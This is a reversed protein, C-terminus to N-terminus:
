EQAVGANLGIGWAWDGPTVATYRGVLDNPDGPTTDPTVDTWTGREWSITVSGSASFAERTSEADPAGEGTGPDIMKPMNAGKSGESDPDERVPRWAVIEGPELAFTNNGPTADGINAGDFDGPYYYDLSVVLDHESINRVGVFSLQLSTDTDTFTEVDALDNFFPVTISVGFASAACVMTAVAVVAVKKM